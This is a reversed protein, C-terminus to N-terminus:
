PFRAPTETPHENSPAPAHALSALAELLRDIDEMRHSASFSIRLRSHGQPVTPPRIAPVLLGRAELRRSWDLARAAAGAMLPQIPTTSPMLPLGLKAAGERFHQILRGLHARRWPEARMLELSKLSAAAM